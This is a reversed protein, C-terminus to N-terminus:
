VVASNRRAIITCKTRVRSFAEKNMIGFTNPYETQGWWVTKHEATARQTINRSDHGTRPANASYKIAVKGATQIKVTHLAVRKSCLRPKVSKDHSRGLPNFCCACYTNCGLSPTIITAGVRM